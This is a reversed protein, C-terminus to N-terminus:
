LFGRQSHRPRRARSSYGNTDQNAAPARAIPHIAPFGLLGLQIMQRRSLM